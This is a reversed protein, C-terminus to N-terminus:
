KIYGKEILRSGIEDAILKNALDNYHLSDWYLENKNNLFIDSINFFWQDNTYKQLESYFNDIGM